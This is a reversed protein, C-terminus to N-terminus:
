FETIIYEHAIVHGTSLHKYNQQKNFFTYRSLQNICGCIIHNSPLLILISFLCSDMFYNNRFALFVFFDMFSALINCYIIGKTFFFNRKVWGCHRWYVVIQSSNLLLWYWINKYCILCVALTKFFNLFKPYFYKHVILSCIALTTAIFMFNAFRSNTM